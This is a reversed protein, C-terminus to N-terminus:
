EPARAAPDPSAPASGRQGLPIQATAAKPWCRSGSCAEKQEIAPISGKINGLVTLMIITLQRMMYLNGIFESAIARSGVSCCESGGNDVIEPLRIIWLAAKM